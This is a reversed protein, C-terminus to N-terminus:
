LRKRDEELRIQGPSLKTAQASQAQVGALAGVALILAGGGKM